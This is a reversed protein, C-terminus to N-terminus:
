TTVTQPLPSPHPPSVSDNNQVSVLNARHRLMICTIPNGNVLIRLLSGATHTSTCNPLVLAGGNESGPGCAVKSQSKTSLGGDNCVFIRLPELSVHSLWTCTSTHACAICCLPKM